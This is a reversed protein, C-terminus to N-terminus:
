LLCFNLLKLTDSRKRNFFGDDPLYDYTHLLPISYGSSLHHVHLKQKQRASERELFPARSTSVFM